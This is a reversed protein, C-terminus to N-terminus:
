PPTNAPPTEHGGSGSSARVFPKAKSEQKLIRSTLLRWGLPTKVWTDRARTELEVMQADKLAENAVVFKLHDHIECHIKADNVREFTLVELEEEIHISTSLINKLRQLELDVRAARGEQDLASFKPHRVSLCGDLYRLKTAEVSKQYQREIAERPSEEGSAAISHALAIASGLVIASLKM